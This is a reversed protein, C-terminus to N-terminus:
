AKGAKMQEIKAKGENFANELAESNKFSMMDNSREPKFFWTVKGKSVFYGVQFGDETTFKNELYDPNAAADKDADAKMAKMADTAKVLDDYAISTISSGANSGMGASKEIQYFYSTQTGNEVKRVRTEAGSAFSSKISTLNFDTYKVVTGTKGTAQEMKTKPADTKVDQANMSIAAIVLLPTILKKM